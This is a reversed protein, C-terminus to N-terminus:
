MRIPINKRAPTSYVVNFVFVTYRCIERLKINKRTLHVIKLSRTVGERISAAKQCFQSIFVFDFYM